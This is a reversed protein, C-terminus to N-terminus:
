VITPYPDVYVTLSPKAVKIRFRVPGKMQPTFTVSLSQPKANAGGSGFGTLVWTAAAGATGGTSTALNSGATLLTAPGSTAVSSQPFSASGLYYAEVWLQANTLIVNDTLVEFTATKSSGTTDVWAVIDIMQFPTQPNANATTVVKHSVPTTGDSAGPLASKVHVADATQTGPYDYKELRYNATGADSAVLYTLAQAPTGPTAAVALLAANLRCNIFQTTSRGNATTMLTTAGALLHLDVGDITTTTATAQPSLLVTPITAGIFASSAGAWIFSGFNRIVSGTAGVSYTCNLFAVETTGSNVGLALFQAVTGNLAIACTDYTQRYNGGCFTLQPGNAGSGCSIAMGYFYAYGNVILTFAGSTTLVAGALLDSPGAPSNTSGCSFVRNPLAATGKFTLTTNVGFTETHTSLVNFDDGAASFGIAAAMTTCANIWSTGAGTGGAASNVYWTAM